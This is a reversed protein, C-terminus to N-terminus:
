QAGPYTVQSLRSLTRDYTIYTISLVGCTKGEEQGNPFVEKASSGAQKSSTKRSSGKAARKKIRDAQVVVASPPRGSCCASEVRKM